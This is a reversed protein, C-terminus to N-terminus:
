VNEPNRPRGRQKQHTPIPTQAVEVLHGESAQDAVDREARAAASMHQDDGASYAAAAAISLDLMEQAEVALTPHGQWLSGLSVEEEPSHVIRTYSEMIDRTQAILFEREEDDGRKARMRKAAEHQAAARLYPANYLMKPYEHHVYRPEGKLHGQADLLHSYTGNVWPANKEAHLAGGDIEEDEAEAYAILKALQRANLGNLGGLNM